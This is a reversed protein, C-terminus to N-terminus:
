DPYDEVSIFELGSADVRSEVFCGVPHADPPDEPPGQYRILAWDWEVTVGTGDVDKADGEMGMPIFIFDGDAREIVIGGRRRVRMVRSM